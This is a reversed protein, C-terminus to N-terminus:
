HNSGILAQLGAGYLRGYCFISCAQTAKLLGYVSAEVDDPIIKAVTVYAPLFLFSQYM